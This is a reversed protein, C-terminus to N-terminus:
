SKRTFLARFPATIKWAFSDYIEALRREASTRAAECGAFQNQTTTLTQQLNNALATAATLQGQLTAIQRLAAQLKEGTESADRAYNGAMAHAAGLARNAEDLKAVLDQAIKDRAARDQEHSLQAASFERQVSALKANLVRDLEIIYNIKGELVLEVQGLISIADAKDTEKQLVTDQLELVTIQSLILEKRVSQVLDIKEALERKLVEIENPLATGSSRESM